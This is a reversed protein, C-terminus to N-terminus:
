FKWEVGTRWTRGYIQLESDEGFTKDFVNDVGAYAYLKGITKTVVFNTTSYSHSHHNGDLYNQYWQNYLTATWPNQRADTWALEVTGTNFARNTLRAHSNGDRADLYTYNAKASWHKDFNYGAEAELGEMVARNINQYRYIRNFRSGTPMTVYDILNSIKNHFYTLKGTAKGREGELGIDFNVAKEPELNPNGLVYIHMPGFAHDMYGYMDFITPARYSRGYNVKLRSNKTFNYTLGARPTWETGFGSYHDFRVSPVFFLKPGLQMEDQLYFAYSSCDGSGYPETIGPMGSRSEFRIRSGDNYRTGGVKNKKYEFGYTLTNDKDMRYTNKAENVWTSYRANNFNDWRGLANQGRSVKGLRSYYSQVEWDNKVDNGYYKVHYNSRNNDYWTDGTPMNQRLREQMFGAGFDLGSHDSLEYDGSFEFSSRPGFMNTNQKINYKRTKTLDYNFNLNLRGQKGTSYGGYVSSSRGGTKAGAYGSEEEDRKTIINIVGGVADSGYLASGSGRLIEIHDVNSLPIRSLEYVNATSGSDEGGVRRGDILILTANSGMGRLSVRNGVMSTDTVSAEGVDLGVATKLIDRIDYAGVRKFDAERLVEMSVPNKKANLKTRTATIVIDQVPAAPQAAHVIGTACTGLVATTGWIIIQKGRKM